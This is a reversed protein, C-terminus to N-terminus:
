EQTLLMGTARPNAELRAIHVRVPMSKPDAKMAAADVEPWAFHIPGGDQQGAVSLNLALLYLMAAQGEISLIPLGFSARGSADFGTLGISARMNELKREVGAPTPEIELHPAITGAAGYPALGLLM